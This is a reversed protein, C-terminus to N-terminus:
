VRHEGVEISPLIVEDKGLRLTISVTGQRLGVFRFEGLEDLAAVHAEHDSAGARPHHVLEVMGVDDPGLVQGAMAFREAVPIIRLDIDHGKASFLLHRTRDPMSRMGSALAHAGWSDFSLAAAVHQSLAGALDKWPRVPTPAGIAVARCLWDAPAGPLALAQRSLSALEDDTMAPLHEM